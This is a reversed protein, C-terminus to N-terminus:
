VHDRILRAVLEFPHDGCRDQNRHQREQRVAHEGEELAPGRRARQAAPGALLLAGRECARLAVFPLSWIVRLVQYRPITASNATARAIASAAHPDSSSFDPPPSALGGLPCGPLPLGGTTSPAFFKVSSNM